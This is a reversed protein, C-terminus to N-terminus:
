PASWDYGLRHLEIEISEIGINMRRNLTDIRKYNSLASLRLALSLLPASIDLIPNLSMGRLPFSFFRTPPNQSENENDVDESDENEPAAHTDESQADNPRSLGPDDHEIFLKPKTEIEMDAELMTDGMKGVLCATM